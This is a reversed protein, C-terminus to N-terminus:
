GRRWGSVAAGSSRGGRDLGESSPEEATQSLSQESTDLWLGIRPTERRLHADLEAEDPPVRRRAPQVSRRGGAACRTSTRRTRGRRHRCCIDRACRQDLTRPRLPDAHAGLTASAGQRGVIVTLVGSLRGREPRRAAEASGVAQREEVQETRPVLRQVGIRAPVQPDRPRLEAVRRLEEATVEAAAVAIGGPPSGCPQATRRRM